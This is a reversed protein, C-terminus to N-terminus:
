NDSLLLYRNTERKVRGERMLKELHAQVSFEAVRQLAPSVDVYIMQTIDGITNRGKRLAALVQQERELRHQIYERIKAEPKGILPGHGPLILSIDFGLLRELSKLYDTMNGDPPRIVATGFGLINDGSFLVKDGAEYFCCHGSEHGPTHLVHLEGGGLAIRDNDGYQFDEGGLFGARSRHIGLKAGTRKKLALAGGCHDSHIHTLLIKEIKKAGMAEAQEIIGDMNSDAGLAVDIVVVNEKGVVYQNTGQLTMIGPNDATYRRIHNPAAMSLKEAAEAGRRPLPHFGGLLALSLKGLVALAERRTIM